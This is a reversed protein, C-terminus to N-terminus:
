ALCCSRTYNMAYKKAITAKNKIGKEVGSIAQYKM